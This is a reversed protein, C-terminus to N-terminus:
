ALREQGSLLLGRATTVFEERQEPAMARWLRVLQAEDGTVADGVQVDDREDEGLM